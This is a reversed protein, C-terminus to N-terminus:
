AFDEWLSARQAKSGGPSAKPIGSKKWGEYSVWAGVFLFAIATFWAAARSKM